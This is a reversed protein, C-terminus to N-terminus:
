PNRINEVRDDLWRGIGRNYALKNQDQWCALKFCIFIINDEYHSDKLNFTENFDKGTFTYIDINPVNLGTNKKLFEILQKIIKDNIVETTYSLASGKELEKIEESTATILNYKIHDKKFLNFM